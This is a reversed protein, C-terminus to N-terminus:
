DERSAVLMKGFTGDQNFAAHKYVGGLHLLTGIIIIRSGWVHIGHLFTHLDMNMGYPGPITFWDFVYIPEGRSWVMLPGSVLMAAVAALIVYHTYKGIEYFVGKQEPTADPHRQKFRWIIRAWLLAYATMAISTHLRLYENSGAALDSQISSGIFWITLIAIATLWHLAISIWGYGTRTDLIRM